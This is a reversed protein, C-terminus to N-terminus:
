RRSRPSRCPGTSPNTAIPSDVDPRVAASASSISAPPNPRQGQQDVGAHQEDRGVPAILRMLDTAVQELRMRARQDGGLRHEGLRSAAPGGARAAASAASYRDTASASSTM